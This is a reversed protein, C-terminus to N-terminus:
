ENANASREPEDDFRGGKKFTVGLFVFNFREINKRMRFGGVFPLWQEVHVIADYFFSFWHYLM